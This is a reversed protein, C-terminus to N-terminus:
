AAQGALVSQVDWQSFVLGLRPLEAAADPVKAGREVLVATQASQTALVYAGIDHMLGAIFVEEPDMRRNAFPVLAQCAAGNAM